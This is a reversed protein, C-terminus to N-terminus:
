AFLVGSNLIGLRINAATVGVGIVATADGAELDAAPMIGGLTDSLVYVVGVAVTAGINIDGGSQYEVPQGQAAGNVAIGDCVRKAVTAHDADSVYILGDSALKHVPQGATIAEAAYGRKLQDSRASVTEVNAATVTLDAM